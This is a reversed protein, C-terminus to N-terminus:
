CGLQLGAPLRDTAGRMRRRKRIGEIVEMVRGAWAFAPSRVNLHLPRGALEQWPVSPSCGAQLTSPRRQAVSVTAPSWGLQGSIAAFAWVVPGM